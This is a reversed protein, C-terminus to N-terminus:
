VYLNHRADKMRSLIDNSNSLQLECYNKLDELAAWVEHDDTNGDVRIRRGKLYEPCTIPELARHKSWELSSINNRPLVYKWLVYPTRDHAFDFLDILRLYIALARLNVNDRLVSIDVPYLPTELENFDSSHSECVRKIATAIGTDIQEFHQSVRIGSRLGHSQRVYERWTEINIEDAHQIGTLPLNNNSAFECFSARDWKLSSKYSESMSEPSQGTIIYSKELESVAMGWDHAYLSSALIFLESSNMGEIQKNGLITDAVHFLSKLHYNEDHPTYEPFLINIQGVIPVVVQRLNELNGLYDFAVDHRANAKSILTNILYCDPLGEPVKIKENM